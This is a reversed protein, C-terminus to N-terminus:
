RRFCISLILAKKTYLYSKFYMDVKARTFASLRKTDCASCRCFWDEKMGRKGFADTSLQLFSLYHQGPLLQSKSEDMFVILRQLPVLMGLERSEPIHSDAAGQAM